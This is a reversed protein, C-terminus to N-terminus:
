LVRRNCPGLKVKQRRRTLNRGEALPNSSRWGQTCGYGSSGVLGGISRCSRTVLELDAFRSLITEQLELLEDLACRLGPVEDDGSSMRAYQFERRVDRALSKIRDSENESHGFLELDRAIPLDVHLERTYRPGAAVISEDLRDKFWDQDFGRKDFWFHVRGIHKPDALEDLLESSGWWAFEVNMGRAVAWGKWKEEHESWRQMSSRRGQVRADPRDMPVCIFYRVLDPHKELATKVSDDLQSWQSSGLSDFYKAQWGWETEDSLVCYCEVGADPTGKRVFKADAPSVVRALQACLEEFGEYKSGNLPRIAKWDLNM